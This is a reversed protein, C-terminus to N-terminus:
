DPKALDATMAALFRGAEGGTVARHDFTVSLPVVRHVAPKGEDAVVANMIRGAGIIAVTPPLVVPASYRGGIMGFNSLTITNGRLEDAPIKRAEVDRRMNDLGRRLDAADRSGCDRLVPVFLGDPTDVAIGIHVKKVLRRWGGKADYWVNLAPEAKCGAVIARILRVTVDTGKPWAHIDADDVLTAPV